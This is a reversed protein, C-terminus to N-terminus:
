LKEREISNLTDVGFIRRKTDEASEFPHCDHIEDGHKVKAEYKTRFIVTVWQGQEDKIDYFVHNKFQLM